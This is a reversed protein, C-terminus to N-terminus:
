WWSGRRNRRSGKRNKRSGRRNKRSGRRRRGGAPAAPTTALTAQAEAAEPTAAVEPKASALAAQLAAVASGTSAGQNKLNKVQQVLGKIMDAQERGSLRYMTNKVRRTAASAANSVRQGFAGLNGRFSRGNAASGSLYNRTRGLRNRFGSVTRGFGTSGTNNKKSFYNRVGQFMRVPSKWNFSFAPVKFSAVPTSSLALKHTDIFNTYATQIQAWQEKGYWKKGSGAGGPVTTPKPIMAMLTNLEAKAAAAASTGAASLSQGVASLSQLMTKYAEELKPTTVQATTVPGARRFMAQIRAVASLATGKPATAAPSGSSFSPFSPLSFSGPKQVANLIQKALNKVEKIEAVAVNASGAASTAANAAAAATNKAANAATAAANAAGNAARTNNVLTSNM